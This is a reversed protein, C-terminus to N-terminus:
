NLRTSKRDLVAANPSLPTGPTTGSCNACFVAGGVGAFPIFGPRYTCTSSPTILRVLPPPVCFKVAPWNPNVGPKWCGGTMKGDLGPRCNVGGGDNLAGVLPVEPEDDELDAATSQTTRQRNVISSEPPAPAIRRRKKKAPTKLYRKVKRDHSVQHELMTM